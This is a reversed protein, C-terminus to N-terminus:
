VSSMSSLKHRICWRSLVRAFPIQKQEESRISIERVDGRVRGDISKVCIEVRGVSSMCILTDVRSRM